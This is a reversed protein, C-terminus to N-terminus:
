SQSLELAEFYPKFEDLDKWGGNELKSLDRHMIYIHEFVFCIIHGYSGQGFLPDNRKLWEHHRDYFVDCFAVFWLLQVRFTSEKQEPTAKTAMMSILTTAITKEYQTPTKSQRIGV